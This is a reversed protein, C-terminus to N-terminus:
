LQAMIEQYFILFVALIAVALGIKNIKSLKERFIVVSSLASILIIGVNVVPYVIAGDNGFAGLSKVLFYISFYNIIGLVTGGIISKLQLQKGKIMLLVAGISFATAFIVIPFIAETSATLYQHSVFNISTDIVGGFIFVLIPMLFASWKIQEKNEKKKKISSLIIAAIALTIGLYNLGIIPRSAIQLIFLSVLVPIVLSMKSAVSAVTIGLRQTTMAMLYFTGIFIAGLTVAIWVWPLDFSFHAAFEAGGLFVIGTIVCVFYNVVIAQITVVNYHSFARFILFIGVSM